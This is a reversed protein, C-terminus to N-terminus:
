WFLFILLTFYINITGERWSIAIKELLEWSKEDNLFQLDHLFGRPDAHLAVDRNRTTLLIKSGTDKVPFAKCLIDWHETNWIDDLIVLCKKEKQVQLLKEVIEDDRLKRIEDRQEKSPSLLSFLIGEWVNRRQCQQSIFVWARCDFHQKVKDHNYVMKALTTKGLGGMGCISAVNVRNGEEEKLLFEVLKNLDDEFGVVDHGLHSYTQRQERQRENL